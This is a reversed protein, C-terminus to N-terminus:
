ITLFPAFGTVLHKSVQVAGRDPSGLAAETKLTGTETTAKWQDVVAPKGAIYTTYTGSQQAFATNLSACLVGAAITLAHKM